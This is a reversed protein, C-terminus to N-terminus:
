PVITEDQAATKEKVEELLQQEKEVAVEEEEDAKTEEDSKMAQEEIKESPVDEDKKEKDQAAMDDIDLKTKEDSDEEEITVLCIVTSVPGLIIESAETADGMARREADDVRPPEEGISEIKARLNGALCEQNNDAHKKHLTIMEGNEGDAHKKKETIDDEDFIFTFLVSEYPLIVFERCLFVVEVLCVATYALSIESRRVTIVAMILNMKNIIYKVFM